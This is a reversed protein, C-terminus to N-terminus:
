LMRAPWSCSLKTGRGLSQKNCGMDKPMCQMLCLRLNVAFKWAWKRLIFCHSYIKNGFKQKPQVDSKLALELDDRGVGSQSAEPRCSRVANRIQSFKIKNKLRLM